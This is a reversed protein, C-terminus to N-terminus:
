VPPNKIADFYTSYAAMADSYLPFADMFDQYTVIPIVIDLTTADIEDGTIPWQTLQRGYQVNIDQKQVKAVVVYLLRPVETPPPVRFLVITRKLLALLSSRTDADKTQLALNINTLKGMAGLLSVLRDGVQYTQIARDWEYTEGFDSRLDVQVASSPDTPDSIWAKGDDADVHGTIPDLTGLSTGDEDFAEATYTFDVGLPIEFDDLVAGGEAFLASGGRVVYTEDATRTVKITHTGTPLDAAEWVLHASPPEATLTIMAM